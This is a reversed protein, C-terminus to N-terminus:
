ETLPSWTAGGDFSVIREKTQPNTAYQPEVFDIGLRGAAEVMVKKYKAREEPNKVMLGYMKAANIYAPDKLLLAQKAREAKGQTDRGKTGEIALLTAQEVQAPTATQPKGGTIRNLTANYLQRYVQEDLPTRSASAASARASMESIRRQEMKDKIDAMEKARAVELKQIETDLQRARDWDNNAYAEQRQANILDIQRTLGALRRSETQSELFEKEAAAAEKRREGLIAGMTQAASGVASGRTPDIGGALRFMAEASNYVPKNLAAMLSEYRKKAGARQEDEEAKSAELSRLGVSEVGQRAKLVNEPIGRQGQLVGSLGKYAQQVDALPDYGEIGGRSVSQSIRQSQSTRQSQVQSQPAAAPPAPRKIAPATSKAPATTVPKKGMEYDPDFNKTEDGMEYDPDFPLTEGGRKYGRGIISDKVTGSQQRAQQIAAQGMVSERLREADQAEQMASLLAYKPIKSSPNNFEVLLEDVGKGKLAPVFAGVGRPNLSM